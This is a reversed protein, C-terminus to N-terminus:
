PMRDYREYGKPYPATDPQLIVSQHAPIEVEICGAFVTPSISSGLLDRMPTVDQLKSERLQLFEKVPAGTPNALVVLTESASVTRRLFAFLKQSHLRRFDGIRLAPQESRIKLLRRHLRLVPNQENVLDWRMPARSEPEEGGEMGLESGYYLCVSGPLTFQLVRAMDVQWPQRLVNNLRVTDHNDLVIWAKLIHDYGAEEVMTEWMSSALPGPLTGDLMKLLLARGHMNMVGDVAPHWDEPYNWIEGVILSGPKAAHAARTLAALYKFGLDFAVDLRWGDVDEQRLYSQVVSDPKAYIYDQVRPNELNLEPLNDVDLWTVPQDPKDTRWKFFEHWPSSADHLAEQFHPSRRGMHNFVGDLVLKMGRRHLEDALGHLEARDGYIPDVQHYDWADYKHNTLSLFIPNLYVVEVGLGQLYDLHDRVSRLDGGWFDVEHSWVQDKALYSGRAPAESWERLRRPPAYLSRKQQLSTSPAFRDVFIQYVVTGNRWDAARAKMEEARPLDKEPLLTPDRDARCPSAAALLLLSAALLYRM